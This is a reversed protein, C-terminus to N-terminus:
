YFGRFGAVNQFNAYVRGSFAYAPCANRFILYRRGYPTTTFYTDKGTDAMTKMNVQVEGVKESTHEGNGGDPVAGSSGAGSAQDLAILHAALYLQANNCANFITNTQDYYIELQADSTGDFEPFLIRFKVVFQDFALAM